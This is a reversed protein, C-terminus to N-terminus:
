DTPDFLVPGPLAPASAWAPEAAALQRLLYAVEGRTASRGPRFRSGGAFGQVLGQAKAWNM